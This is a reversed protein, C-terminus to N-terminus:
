QVARLPSDLHCNQGTNQEVLRARWASTRHQSDPCGRNKWVRFCAYSIILLIPQTYFTDSVREDDNLIIEKLNEKYFDEGIEIAEKFEIFESFHEKFM